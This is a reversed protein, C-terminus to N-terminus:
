SIKENHEKPIAMWCSIRLRGKKEVAKFEAATFTYQLTIDEGIDLEVQTEAPVAFHSKERESETIKCLEEIKLVSVDGIERSWLLESNHCERQTRNINRLVRAKIFM